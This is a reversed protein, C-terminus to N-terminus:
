NTNVGNARAIGVRRGLDDYAYTALAGGAEGVVSVAGSLDYAYTAYYADPWTMRTRNGALDYQYSWTGFADSKTVARNLADHTWGLTSTATTASLMRGLNDYTYSTAPLNSATLRQLADYTYSITTGDRRRESAVNSAADYTCDEYDTTSSGSGTAM